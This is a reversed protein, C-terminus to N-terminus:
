RPSRRQSCASEASPSQQAAPQTGSIRRRADTKSRNSDFPESLLALLAPVAPSAAPGVRALIETAQFRLETEPSALAKILNPVVSSTLQM